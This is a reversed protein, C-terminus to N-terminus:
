FSLSTSFIKKLGVRSFSHECDHPSMGQSRVGIGLRVGLSKAGLGIVVMGGLDLAKVGSGKVGFVM